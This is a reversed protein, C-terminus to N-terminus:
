TIMSAGCKCKKESGNKTEIKRKRRTRASVVNDEEALGPGYNGLNKEAIRREEYIRELIKANTKHKRKRKFDLTQSRNKANTKRNDRIRLHEMTKKQLVIGIVDYINSWTNEYGDNNFCIALALRFNAGGTPLPSLSGLTTSPNSCLASVCIKM